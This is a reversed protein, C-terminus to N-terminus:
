SFHNALYERILYRLQQFAKTEQLSAVDTAPPETTNQPIDSGFLEAERKRRKVHGPYTVATSLIREKAKEYKGKKVLQIFETKRFNGIGMNFILSVMADYMGQSINVQIEEKEWKDLVNNLYKEAMSIDHELFEEAQQYTISDGVQLNSKSERQAHGYGVTIMGDGMNYAKLIPEGKYKPSGEERKLFSKLKDSSKRPSVVNNKPEEVKEETEPEQKREVQELDAQLDKVDDTLYNYLQNSPLISMMTIFVYKVVRRKIVLPLRQVQKMFVNLYRHAKSPSDITSLSKNLKEKAIDWEFTNSSEQTMVLLNLAEALYELEKHLDRTNMNM